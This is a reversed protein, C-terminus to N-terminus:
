ADRYHSCDRVDVEVEAPRTEHPSVAETPPASTVFPPRYDIREDGAEWSFRDPNIDEPPTPGLAKMRDAENRTVDYPMDPGYRAPRHQAARPEFDDMGKREDRRARYPPESGCGELSVHPQPPSSPASPPLFRPPLTRPLSPSLYTSAGSISPLRRHMLEERRQELDKFECRKRHWEYKELEHRIRKDVLKKLLIYSAIASSGIFILGLVIGLTVAAIEASPWSSSTPQQSPPM